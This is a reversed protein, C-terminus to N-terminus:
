SEGLKYKKGSKVILVHVPEKDEWKVEDFGDLMTLLEKSQWTEISKVPKTKHLYLHRNQDRAIWM